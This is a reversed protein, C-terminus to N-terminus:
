GVVKVRSFRALGSFIARFRAAEAYRRGSRRTSANFKASRIPNVQNWSVPYRVGCGVALAPIGNRTGNTRPARALLPSAIGRGLPNPAASSVAPSRLVEFQIRESPEPDVQLPSNWRIAEAVLCVMLGFCGKTLPEAGNRM